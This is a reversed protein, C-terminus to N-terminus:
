ELDKPMNKEVLPVNRLEWEKVIESTLDSSRALVRGEYGLMRLKDYVEWGKERSPRLDTDFVIIEIDNNTKYQSIAEDGNKATIPTYGRSFKPVFIEDLQLQMYDDDVILVKIM